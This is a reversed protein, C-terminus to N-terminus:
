EEFKLYSYVPFHDSYGGQHWRGIYTRFPTDKRKGKWTKIFRMDYVKTYKLRHKQPTKEFFNRTFIMQDFLYWRHQSYSSGSGKDALSQMPNYLSMNRMLNVVSEDHFEDNFDGMIVIRADPEDKQISDVLFCLTESATMRKFMTESTGETRSPWHNVLIHMREGNLQGTVHLIDRTFDRVGDQKYIIVPHICSETVKFKDDRYLLAVDIGRDDPSDYHVYKYKRERLAKSEVLDKVVDENEVEAIGVIVPTYASHTNGINAIVETLNNIKNKYREYNWNKSGIPTFDDDNTEPDDYIDFLNELNYFALTFVNDKQKEEAFYTQM